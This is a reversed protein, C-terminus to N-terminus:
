ASTPSTPGGTDGGRRLRRLRGLLDRLMSTDSRSARRALELARSDIAEYGAYGARHRRLAIAWRELVLPSETTPSEPRGEDPTSRRREELELRPRAPNSSGPAAM